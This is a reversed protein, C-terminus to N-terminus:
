LHFLLSLKHINYENNIYYIIIIMVEHIENRFM